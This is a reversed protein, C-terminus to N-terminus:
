LIQQCTFEAGTLLNPIPVRTKRITLQLQGSIKRQRLMELLRDFVCQNLHEILHYKKEQATKLIIETLDAYNVADTLQDSTSGRLNKTFQIEVTFLAPQPGAQEEASCGLRCWVEFDRIRLTQRCENM